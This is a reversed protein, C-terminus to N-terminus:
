ISAKRWSASETISIAGEMAQASARARFLHYSEAAEKRLLECTTIGYMGLRPAPISVDCLIISTNM